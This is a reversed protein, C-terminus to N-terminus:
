DQDCRLHDRRKQFEGKAKRRKWETEINELHIIQKIAVHGVIFLLKSLEFASSKGLQSVTPLEGEAPADGDRASPVAAAQTSIDLASGFIKTMENVALDEPTGIGLTSGAIEKALNGCLVDPHDCLLYITNLAQEAFGFRFSYPTLM